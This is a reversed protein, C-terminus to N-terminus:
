ALGEKRKYSKTLSQSYHNRRDMDGLTDALGEARRLKELAVEHRRKAALNSAEAAEANKRLTHGLRFPNRWKTM